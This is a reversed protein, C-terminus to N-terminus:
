CHEGAASLDDEIGEDLGDQAAEEVTAGGRGVEPGLGISSGLRLLRVVQSDPAFTMNM